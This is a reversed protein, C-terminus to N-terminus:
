GIGLDSFDVEPIENGVVTPIDIVVPPFGHAALAQRFVARSDHVIERRADAHLNYAIGLVQVARQELLALSMLTHNISGLKPSSVLLVPYERAEIFDLATVRATLPVCLGGVGELIVPAYKAKLAATAADIRAIDIVDGELRAALHPSMPRSYVFPCTTRDQDEARWPMGMLRRHEGIDHSVGNCGTQALKQTIVEHGQQLLHRGLLGTVVTKGVDTDIGAVFIVPPSTPM